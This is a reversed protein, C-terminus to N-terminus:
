PRRATTSLFAARSLAFGVEVPDASPSRYTAAGEIRGTAELAQGRYSFIPAEAGRETVDFIVTRQGDIEGEVIGSVSAPGSGGGLTSVTATGGLDREDQEFTVSLELRFSSSDTNVSASGQWPGDIGVITETGGLGCGAVVLAAFLFAGLWLWQRRPSAPPRRPAHEESFSRRNSLTNSSQM